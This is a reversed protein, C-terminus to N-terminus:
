TQVQWNRVCNIFLMFSALPPWQGVMWWQELMFVLYRFIFPDCTLSQRGFCFQSLPFLFCVHFIPLRYSNCLTLKTPAVQTYFEPSMYPMPLPFSSMAHHNSLIPTFMFVCPYTLRKSMPMNTYTCITIHNYPTPNVNFIFEYTHTDSPLIFM